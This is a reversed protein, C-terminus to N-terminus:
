LVFFCVLVGCVGFVIVSASFFCFFCFVCFLGFFCCWCMGLVEIGEGVMRVVSM